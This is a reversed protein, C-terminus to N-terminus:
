PTPTSTPPIYGPAFQPCTPTNDPINFMTREGSSENSLYEFNNATFDRNMNRCAYSVFARYDTDWLRAKQDDGGTVFFRSDPTFAVANTIGVASVIERRVEGVAVDWLRVTHDDSSTLLYRGDPSFIINSIIAYQGTLQRVMKGTGADWLMIVGDLGGTAVYKGDPSIAISVPWSAPFNQILMGTDIDILLNGVLGAAIISHGDPSFGVDTVVGIFNSFTRIEKGTQADWLLLQDGGTLIYRGDPSYAVPHNVPGASEPLFLIEKEKQTDWVSAGQPHGMVIYRGDPSYALDAVEGYNSNLIVTENGTQIDWLRATNDRGGTALYLGNPSVAIALILKTHGVFERKDSLYFKNLSAQLAVDAESTYATNLARIGLLAAGAPNPTANALVDNALLALRLSEIHDKGDQVQTAVLAAQTDVASLTSNGNFVQTKAVNVGAVATQQAIVAEGQAVTATIVQVASTSQASVAQGQANTATAAQAISTDRALVSQAQATSASQAQGEFIRAQNYVLLSALGAILLLISLLVAYLRNRHISRERQADRRTDEDEAQRSTAIYNRQDDTARPEDAAIDTEALWGEYAALEDGRLLASPSRGRAEWDRIRLILRTHLQVRQPDANVTRLLADVADDFKNKLIGPYDIYQIAKLAEWNERAMAEHPRMEVHTYWGGILAAEDVPRYIFSIIRKNHKRAHEIERHCYVSNLADPSVILVFNDAGEIGACIEEWWKTSYDIGQWDVWAERGRAKLDDFLRRVFDTDKRSYSIFVDTM